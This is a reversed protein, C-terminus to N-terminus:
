EESQDESEFKSTPSTGIVGLKLSFDDNCRMIEEALQEAANSESNSRRSVPAGAGGELQVTQIEAGIIALDKVKVIFDRSITLDGSALPLAVCFDFSDKFMIPPAYVKLESIIPCNLSALNESDVVLRCAESELEFLCLNENRPGSLGLSIKTDGYPNPLLLRFQSAHCGIEQLDHPNSAEENM